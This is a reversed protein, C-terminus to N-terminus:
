AFSQEGYTSLVARDRAAQCERKFSDAWDAMQPLTAPPPGFTTGGFARLWEWLRTLTAQATALPRAPDPAVPDPPAPALSGLIAAAELLLGAGELAPESALTWPGLRQDRLVAMDSAGCYQAFTDLSMGERVRGAAVFTKWQPDLEAGLWAQWTGFGLAQAARTWRPREHFEHAFRDIETLTWGEALMRGWLEARPGVSRVLADNFVAKMDDRIGAQASAVLDTAGHRALLMAQEDMSFPRTLAIGRYTGGQTHLYCGPAGFYLIAGTVPDRLGTMMAIAHVGGCNGSGWQVLRNVMARPAVCEALEVFMPSLEQAYDAQELKERAAHDLGGGFIESGFTNLIFKVAQIIITVIIGVGTMACVLSAADLAINVAKQVDPMTASTVTFYVSVVFGIVAVVSLLAGFDIAPLALTDAALAGGSGIAGGSDLGLPVGFDLGTPPAVAGPDFSGALQITFETPDITPLNVVSQSWAAVDGPDALRYDTWEARTASTLDGTGPRSQFYKLIESVARQSLSAMMRPSLFLASSTTPAVPALTPALVPVPGTNPSPAVPATTIASGDHGYLALLYAQDAATAYNRPDLPDFAAAEALTFGILALFYDRDAVSGYNSPDALNYRPDRVAPAPAPAPAAIPVPAPLAIPSPIALSSPPAVAGPAQPPLLTELLGAVGGPRNLAYLLGVIAADLLLESGAM